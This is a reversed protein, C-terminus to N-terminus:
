VELAVVKFPLSAFRPCEFLRHPEDPVVEFSVRGHAPHSSSGQFADLCASLAPEIGTRDEMDSVRGLRRSRPQGAHRSRLGPWWDSPMTEMFTHSRACSQGCRTGTVTLRYPMAARPANSVFSPTEPRGSPAKTGCRLQGPEVTLTDVGSVRAFRRSWVSRYVLELTQDPLERYQAVNTPHLAPEDWDIATVEEGSLWLVGFAAEGFSKASPAL